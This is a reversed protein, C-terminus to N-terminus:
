LSLLIKSEILAHFIITILFVRDFSFCPSLDPANVGGKKLSFDIFGTQGAGRGTRIHYQAGAWFGDPWGLQTDNVWFRKGEIRGVVVVTRDILGEFGPNKIVNAMLQEAGWSTWFGLNVGFRSVDTILAKSSVQFEIAHASPIEVQRAMVAMVALGALCVTGLIFIKQWGNM